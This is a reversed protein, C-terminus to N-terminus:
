KKSFCMVCVVYTIHHRSKLTFDCALNWYHPSTSDSFQQESGLKAM